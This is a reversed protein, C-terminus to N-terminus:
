PNQPSLRDLGRVGVYELYGAQHAQRHAERIQQPHTTYDISLVLKGARVVPQLQKQTAARFDPPSVRGDGGMGFFIEEKALGTIAQLVRADGILAEGGNLFLGIDRNQGLRQSLNLVLQRMDSLAQPRSKQWYEHADVVDLFLGDYGLGLLKEAYDFLLKQWQPDWYRVKYNEPWDPNPKDLWPPRGPRWGRQWYSRYREAEGVSLYAVLLRGGQRLQQLEAPSYRGEWSGDRSFDMILMQCPSQAIEQPKLNQLQCAFSKVKQWRTPAPSPPPPTPVPPVSSCSVALLM